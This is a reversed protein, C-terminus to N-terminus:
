IINLLESVSTNMNVLDILFLQITVNDESTFIMEKDVHKIIQASLPYIVIVKSANYKKAYAYMQYMDTQSIGYKKRDNDNLM